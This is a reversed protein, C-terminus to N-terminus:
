DHVIRRPTQFDKGNTGNGNLAYPEGWREDPGFFTAAQMVSETGEQGTSRVYRAYREVGALLDAASVGAKRRARWAKLARRKPNDGSRSPYTTWATEFESDGLATEVATTVEEERSEELRKMANCPTEHREAEQRERYRRVRETSSDERERKPQRKEWGTVRDGDLVLGQMAERVRAVADAGLDLAAAGVRDSWGAITGRAQENGGARELMLAWVSLVVALPQGSEAAVVRWKPDTVTGAYWRLWEM